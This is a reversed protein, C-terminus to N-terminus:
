RDPLAGRPILADPVAVIMSYFKAPLSRRWIFRYGEGMILRLLLNLPRVGVDPYSQLTVFAGYGSSRLVELAATSGDRFEHAAQELLVIPQDNNLVRLAGQLVSVEHGEVDIKILSISQCNAQQWQEDLTSLTCPFRGLSPAQSVSAMGANGEPQDIWASGPRDSLGLAFPRVAPALQSNLALLQYTRPHPEFAWVQAFHQAFFLSHNGINAGVDVCLGRPRSDLAQVLHWVAALEEREYRGRLNIQLGVLDFAYTAVAPYGAKLLRQGQRSLVRGLGAALMRQMVPWGRANSQFPGRKMDGVRVDADWHSSELGDLRFRLQEAKTLALDLRLVPLRCRSPGHLAALMEINRRSAVSM